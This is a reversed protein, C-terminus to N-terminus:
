REAKGVRNLTLAVAAAMRELQKSDTALAAGIARAFLEQTYLTHFVIATDPLLSRIREIVCFGDHLPLSADILAVDPRLNLAARVFAGAQHIIGVVNFSTSLLQDIRVIRDSHHYGILARPRKTM